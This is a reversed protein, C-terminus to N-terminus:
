TNDNPYESLHMRQLSQGDVETMRSTCCHRCRSAQGNRSKRPRGRRRSGDVTQQQKITPLMDLRCVHSRRKFTSM